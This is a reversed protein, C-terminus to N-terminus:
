GLGLGVGGLTQSEGDEPAEKYEKDEMVEYDFGLLDIPITFKRSYNQQAGTLFAQTFFFGSVWFVPPAETEYWDQPPCTSVEYVCFISLCQCRSTLLRPIQGMEKYGQPKLNFNSKEPADM